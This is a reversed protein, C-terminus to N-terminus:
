CSQNEIYKVLSAKPIKYVRGIRFASIERSELLSYAADKGIGLAGQLDRVSLVDPYTKFMQIKREM